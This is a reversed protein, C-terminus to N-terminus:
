TDATWCMRFVPVYQSLINKQKGTNASSGAPERCTLPHDQVPGDEAVTHKGPDACSFAEYRTFTFQPPPDVPLIPGLGLPNKPNIKAKRLGSGINITIASM